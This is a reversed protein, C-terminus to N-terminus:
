IQVVRTCLTRKIGCHVNTQKTKDLLRHLLKFDNVPVMWALSGEDQESGVIVSYQFKEEGATDHQYTHLASFSEYAEKQTWAQLTIGGFLTMLTGAPIDKTARLSQPSPDLGRGKAMHVWNETTFVPARNECGGNDVGTCEEPCYCGETPLKQLGASRSLEGLARRAVKRLKDVSNVLGGSETMEEGKTRPKGQRATVVRGGVKGKEHNEGDSVMASYQVPPSLRAHTQLKNELTLSTTLLHGGGVNGSKKSEGLRAGGVQVTEAGSQWVSGGRTTADGQGWTIDQQGEAESAEVLRMSTHSRPAEDSAATQLFGSKGQHGGFNTPGSM